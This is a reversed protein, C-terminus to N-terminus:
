GVEILEKIEWTAVRADLKRHDTPM